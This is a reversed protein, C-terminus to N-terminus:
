CQSATPSGSDKLCSAVTFATPFPTRCLFYVRGLHCGLYSEPGLIIEVGVTELHRYVPLFRGNRAEGSFYIEMDIKIRIKNIKIKSDALVKNSWIHNLHILLM